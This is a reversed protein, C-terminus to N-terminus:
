AASRKVGKYPKIKMGLNRCLGLFLAEAKEYSRPEKKRVRDVEELIKEEQNVDKAVAWWHENVVTRSRGLAIDRGISKIFRDEECCRSAGVKIYNGCRYFAVVAYPVLTSHIDYYHLYAFWIKDEKKDEKKEEAAGNTKRLQIKTKPEEATQMDTAKEEKPEWPDYNFVRHSALQTEIDLGLSYVEMVKQMNGSRLKVERRPDQDRQVFVPYDEYDYTDCVIIVHTANQAKGEKLWERIQSQSTGM